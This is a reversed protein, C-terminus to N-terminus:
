STRDVYIAVYSLKNAYNGGKHSEFVGYVVLKSVSRDLALAYTCPGATLTHSYGDFTTM